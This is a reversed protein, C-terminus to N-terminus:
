KGLVVCGHAWTNQVGANAGHGTVLTIEDAKVRTEGAKGGM